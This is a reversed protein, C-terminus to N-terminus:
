NDAAGHQLRRIGGSRAHAFASLLKVLRPAALRMLACRALDCVLLCSVFPIVTDGFRFWYFKLLRDACLAAWLLGLLFLGSSALAFMALLRRRADPYFLAWRWLVLWVGLSRWVGSTGKPPLGTHPCCITRLVSTSLSIPLKRLSIM